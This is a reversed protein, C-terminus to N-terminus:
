LFTIVLRSLMNLLLSLSSYFPSSMLFVCCNLIKHLGFLMVKFYIFYFHYCFFSISFNAIITSSKLACMSFLYVFSDIFIQTVHHIFKVYISYWVWYHSFVCRNEWAYPVIYLLQDYNKTSGYTEM